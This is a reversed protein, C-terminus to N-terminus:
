SRFMQGATTKIVKADEFSRIQIPICGNQIPQTLLPTPTSLITVSVPLLFCERMLGQTEFVPLIAGEVTLGDPGMSVFWQKGERKM